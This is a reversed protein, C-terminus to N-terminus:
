AIRDVRACPRPHDWKTAARPDNHRLAGDVAGLVFAPMRLRRDNGAGDVGLGATSNFRRWAIEKAAQDGFGMGYGYGGYGMGYGGYGM